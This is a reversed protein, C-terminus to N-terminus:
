PANTRRRPQFRQMNLNLLFLPALIFLGDAVIQFFYGRTQMYYGFFSPVLACGALRAEYGRYALGKVLRCAVSFYLFALPFLGWWGMQVLMEAHQPAAIGALDAGPVTAGSIFHRMYEAVPKDPWLFSPVLRAMSVLWPEFPSLRPLPRSAVNDFAYVIGIEGGFHNPMASMDEQNLLSLDIGQGYRRVEGIWLVLPLGACMGLFGKVIGVKIGRQLAFVVAVASLLIVIRFRFGVQLLVLLVAALLLLSRRSFRDRTLQVATLPILLNFAQSVFAYQLVDDAAFRYESNGTLNLKGTVNQAIVGVVALGWLVTYIPTNFKRDWPYSAAPNANLVRWNMAFAAMAGLAYLLVATHMASLDSLYMGFFGDDGGGLVFAPMLYFYFLSTIMTMSPLSLSGLPSALASIVFMALLPVLSLLAIDTPVYSLDM